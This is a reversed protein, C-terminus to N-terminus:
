VKVAFLLKVHIPSFVRLEFMIKTMLRENEIVSTIFESELNWEMEISYEWYLEFFM